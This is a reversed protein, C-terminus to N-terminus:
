TNNLFNYATNIALDPIFQHSFGVPMFTSLNTFIKVIMYIQSSIKRYDLFVKIDKFLM